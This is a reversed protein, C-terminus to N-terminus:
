KTSREAKLHSLMKRWLAAEPNLGTSEAFLILSEIRPTPEQQCTWCLKPLCEPCYEIPQADSEEAHNAGNMCCEYATCHDIGFLHGIEHVAIKLTRRLTRRYEIDSGDPNGNRAISWVGVRHDPDALGFLFNSGPGAWLDTATLGIICAADEPIVPLLDHQMLHPALWQEKTGNSRLRRANAPVQINRLVDLCVTEMGFYAGVFDRTEALLREQTPTFEGLPVLYIRSVRSKVPERQSRVFELFSQRLEPHESLWEGPQVSHMRTALPELQRTLETFPRLADDSHRYVPQSIAAM